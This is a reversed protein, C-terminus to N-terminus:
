KIGGAKKLVAIVKDLAAWNARKLEETRLREAVALATEGKDSKANVNAGYDLLLKVVKPDPSWIVSYILPTVGEYRCDVSIGQNVFCDLMEQDLNVWTSLCLGDCSAFVGRCFEGRAPRPASFSFILGLGLVVAATKATRVDM